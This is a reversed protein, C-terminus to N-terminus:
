HNKTDYATDDSSGPTGASKSLRLLEGLLPMALRKRSM